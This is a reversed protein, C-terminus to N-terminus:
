QEVRRRISRVKAALKLLHAYQEDTLADETEFRAIAGLERLDSEIRELEQYLQHRPGFCSRRIRSATRVMRRCRVLAVDAPICM